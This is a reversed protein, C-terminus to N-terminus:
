LSEGKIELQHGGAHFFPTAVRLASTKFEFDLIWSRPPTQLDSQTINEQASLTEHKSLICLFYGKVEQVSRYKM